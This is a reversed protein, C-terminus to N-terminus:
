GGENEGGHMLENFDGMCVWSLSNERSLRKLLLWSEESRNTKPNGYFGMFADDGLSIVVNIHSGLYTQVVVNMNQKWLLALGGSWGKSPVLLGQPQKLGEKIGYTEFVVLKTEMLFILNPDKSTVEKERVIHRNRPGRCNWSLTSM